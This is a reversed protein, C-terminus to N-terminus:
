YVMAKNSSTTNQEDNEFFKLINEKELMADKYGLEMMAKCYEPTFLLYSAASSATQSISGGTAKILVRINKPLTDIYHEAIANVEESPSIILTESPLEYPGRKDKPIDQILQNMIELQHIDDELNDIFASNLLQGLIQAVSPASYEDPLDSQLNARRNGSVGIIFLKKAGMKIAPYIASKQRIAGDGYFHNQVKQAPFIGPIASSALLHETTINELIGRRRNDHWPGIMDSGQMFTTSEGTSYSMATVALAILNRNAIATDINSFDLFNDLLERLPANDMLAIPTAHNQTHFLSILTKTISTAIPWRGMNYIREPTLHRWVFALKSVAKTFNGANTALMTANLAGASTGCLIPFPLPSGKVVMRGIASLVGVQYAARAGGGSLILANQNMM